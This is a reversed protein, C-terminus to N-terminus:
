ECYKRELLERESDLLAVREELEAKETQLNTTLEQLGAENNQLTTVLDALNSRECQLETSLEVLEGKKLKNLKITNMQTISVPSPFFPSALSKTLSFKIPSAGVEWFLPNWESM